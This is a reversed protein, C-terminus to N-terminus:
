IQLSSMGSAQGQEHRNARAADVLIAAAEVQDAAQAAAKAASIAAEPVGEWGLAASLGEAEGTKALCVLTKEVEPCADANSHACILGLNHPFPDDWASTIFWLPDMPCVEDGVQSLVLELMETSLFPTVFNVWRKSVDSTGSPDAPGGLEKPIQYRHSDALQVGCDLLAQVVPVNNSRIGHALMGSAERETFLGERVIAQLPEASEPSECVEAYYTRKPSAYIYEDMFTTLGRPSHPMDPDLLSCPEEMVSLNFGARAFALAAEKMGHEIAAAYCRCSFTIGERGITQFLDLVEQESQTTIANFLTQENTIADQKNMTAM